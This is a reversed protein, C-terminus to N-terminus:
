LRIPPGARPNYRARSYPQQTNAPFFLQGLSAGPAEQGGKPGLPPPYEGPPLWMLAVARPAALVALQRSKQPPRATPLWQFSIRPRPRSSQTTPSRSRDTSPDTSLAILLTSFLTPFLSALPCPAAHLCASPPRARLSALPPLSCGSVRPRHNFFGDM